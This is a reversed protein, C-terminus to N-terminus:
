YLNTVRKPILALCSPGVVFHQTIWLGRAVSCGLFGHPSLFGHRGRPNGGGGLQGALTFHRPVWSSIHILTEGNSGPEGPRGESTLHSPFGQSGGGLLLLGQKGGCGLGVKGEGGGRCCARSGRMGAASLRSRGMATLGAEERGLLLGQTASLQWAMPLEWTHKRHM